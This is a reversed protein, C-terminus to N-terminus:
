NKNNSCVSFAKVKEGGFTGFITWSVYYAPVVLTADGRALGSNLFHM